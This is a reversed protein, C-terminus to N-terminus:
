MADPSTNGSAREAEAAAPAAPPGTNSTVFFVIGETIAVSNVLSSGFL